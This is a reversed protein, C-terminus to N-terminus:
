YNVILERNKLNIDCLNSVFIEKEFDLYKINITRLGTNLNKIYIKGGPDTKFKKKLNNDITVELETDSLIGSSNKITIISDFKNIKKNILNIRNNNINYNIKKNESSLKNIYKALIDTLNEGIKIKNINAIPPISYTMTSNSLLMLQTKDDERQLDQIENGNEDILKVSKVRNGGCKLKYDYAQESIDFDFKFGGIQPFSGFAGKFCGDKNDPYELKGVGHELIEYLIKPTIIQFSIKNGHFMSEIIDQYKVTGKNINKRIFGGIVFAVKPINEYKEEEKEEEKKENKSKEILNNKAYDIMSDCIIDGLNTEVSRPINLDGILTESLYGVPKDLIKRFKKICEEYKKSVNLDPSFKEGVEQASMIYSKIDFKGDHNFYIEIRGLNHSNVGTQQIVTNNVKKTIVTHSHGDIIIDIGDVEQALKESTCSTSACVGMHTVAIIIDAGLKKLKKVQEKAVEIEDKFKIGLIDEPPTILATETTVLGFFGLKKGNIEIIYNEGNNGNIEKLIPINNNEGLINAALVPCSSNKTNIIVQNVTFDFDHNGPIRIDYNASNLLEIANQQDLLCIASGQTADGADVLISNPLNDKLSKIYDLGIIELINNNYISGFNGHIDNTHIINIINNIAFIFKCPMFKLLFIAVILFKNMFIRRDTM